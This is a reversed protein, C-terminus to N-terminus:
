SPKWTHLIRMFADLWEDTGADGVMVLAGAPRPIVAVMAPDLGGETFM